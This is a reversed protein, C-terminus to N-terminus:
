GDYDAHDTQWEGQLREAMRTFGYRIADDFDVIVLASREMLAQIEATQHPYFEAVKGYDFVVHRTAALLLFQELDDPLDAAGIDEILKDHVATDRLTSLAPKEGKIEYHPAEVKGSYPNVEATDDEETDPLSGFDSLHELDVDTYGTGTLDTTDQLMALLDANDYSGLDAVRNDALAFATAEDATLDDAWVVAVQHWGLERVAKLQHNGAVVVVQGDDDTRVVIPKRQGFREYSAKVAEVDGRRPNGPLEHLDAVPHLLDTLGDAINM